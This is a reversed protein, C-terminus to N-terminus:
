EETMSGSTEPLDAKPLPEVRLPAVGSKGYVEAVTLHLNLENIVLTAEPETLVTIVWRSAENRCYWEVRRTTQAVLLYHQLSPLKQYQKFKVGRDYAWIVSSLVEVILVPSYVQRSERQDRPDCSMLM